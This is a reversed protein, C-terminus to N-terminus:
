KHGYIGGKGIGLEKDTKHGYYKVKGLELKTPKTEILHSKLNRFEDLRQDIYEQYKFDNPEFNFQKVKQFEPEVLYDNLLMTLLAKGEDEDLHSILDGRLLVIDKSDMFEEFATVVMYPNAGTPNAQYDGLFTIVFSRDQHQSVMVFHNPHDGKPVPYLFMPAAKGKQSLDKYQAKTLTSSVTHEKAHHYENWIM